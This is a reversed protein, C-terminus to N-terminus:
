TTELPPLHESPRDPPDLRGPALAYLMGGIDVLDERRRRARTPAGREPM